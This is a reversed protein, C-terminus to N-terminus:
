AGSVRGRRGRSRAIVQYETHIEKAQEGEERAKAKGSEGLRLIGSEMGPSGLDINRGQFKRDDPISPKNLGEVVFEGVGEM